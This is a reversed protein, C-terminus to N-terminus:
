KEALMMMIENTRAVFGTMREPSLSGHALLALDYLQECFLNVHEGDKHKLIYQVLKNNANLVLTEGGGFMGLDMGNMSYMKMMDQMRRSEESLTIMSSINENKMKEVKVDLKDNGLAKRFIETLSDTTEKLEAEDTAEVFDETLDADIRQFKIKDNKMELHSIFPADINHKLIVANKGEERFLNIYQSQQVEDTVYFIRTKEEEKADADKSEEADTKTEEAKAEETKAADAEEGKAEKIIDELTMYKHDLNKYLMSNKMKEGFKEDKLCGFKIFPSIDDWYKEYNERDTKCMGSLKDAVKKTIYDSIQTLDDTFAETSEYIKSYSNSYSAMAITHGDQVIRKYVDDYKGSTDATVFFTAKVGCSALADLIAGTNDGPICDFTLYVKRTDGDHYVNDKSELQKVVAQTKVGSSEDDSATDGDDSETGTVTSSIATNLQLELKYIRSNLKVVMIGLVVIALISIAMWIAITMIISTKIRSVRKRREQQQRALENDKSDM